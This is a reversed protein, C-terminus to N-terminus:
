WAQSLNRNEASIERVAMGAAIVWHGGNADIYVFGPRTERVTWWKGNFNVQIM